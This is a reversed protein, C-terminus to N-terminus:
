FEFRMPLPWSSGKTFLVQYLQARGYRFAAECSQLYYSWMRLFRTDFPAGLGAIRETNAQFIEHWRRLTEAYHPKWNEVHVVNLGAARMEAAIESLRPLRGGPFIYRQIWPDPGRAPPETSGIAHLLGTGGERLLKKVQRMFTGYQGKGVHEFMGISVIKDFEGQVERYDKLAVEIRGAYGAQRFVETAWVQQNNSLTVGLGSVGHKEAAHLLMTGWGCGIDLLRDGPALMLKRSIREHKQRQLDDITDKDSKLYGCSYTMSPGLFTRYFENGLDYHFSANKRSRGKTLPLTRLYFLATRLMQGRSMRIKKGLRNLLLIGIFDTIGGGRINWENEMYSEGLGLSPNQFVREYFAPSEIVLEAKPLSGAKGFMQRLGGPHEVTLEGQDIHKLVSELARIYKTENQTM